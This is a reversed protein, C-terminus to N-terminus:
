LKVGGTLMLVSAWTAKYAERSDFDDRHCEFDIVERGPTCSRVMEEVYEKTIEECSHMIGYVKNDM